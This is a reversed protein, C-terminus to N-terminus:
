KVCYARGQVRPAAYRGFDDVLARYKGGWTRLRGGILSARSLTPEVHEPLDLVKSLVSPESLTGYFFYWVPYENQRPAPDRDDVHASEDLRYQPLSSNVGLMPGINHDNLAKAAIDLRIITPRYGKASAWDVLKDTISGDVTAFKENKGDKNKGISVELMGSVLAEHYQAQLALLDNLKILFKGKSATTAPAKRVENMTLSYEYSERDFGAAEKEAAIEAWHDNSLHDRALDARYGEIKSKAEPPSFDFLRQWREIDESTVRSAANTEANVAM